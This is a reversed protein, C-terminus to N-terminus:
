RRVGGQARWQKADFWYAWGTLSLKICILDAVSNGMRTNIYTNIDKHLQILKFIIKM